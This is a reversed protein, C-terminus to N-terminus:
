SSPLELDKALEAYFADDLLYYAWLTEVPTVGRQQQWLTLDDFEGDFWGWLFRARFVDLNRARLEAIVDPLEDDDFEDILAEAEDILSALYDLGKRTLEWRDKRRNVVVLEEVALEVLIEELPTLDSPLVFPLIIGGDAPKLDMRKLLYIGAYARRAEEDLPGPRVIIENM